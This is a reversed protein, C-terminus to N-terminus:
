APRCGRRTRSSFPLIPIPIGKLKAYANRLIFFSFVWLGLLVVGGIGRVIVRFPMDETLYLLAKMGLFFALLAIWSITILVMLEYTEKPAKM